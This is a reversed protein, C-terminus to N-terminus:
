FLRPSVCDHQAHFAGRLLSVVGRIQVGGPGKAMEALEAKTEAARKAVWAIEAHNSANEGKWFNLICLGALLMARTFGAYMMAVYFAASGNVRWLDALVRPAQLSQAAHIPLFSGERLQLMRRVRYVGGVGGVANPDEVDEAHFAHRLTPRNKTKDFVAVVTVDDLTRGTVSVVSGVAGTPLLYRRRDATTIRVPTVVVVTMGPTLVIEAPAGQWRRPSSSGREDSAEVFSSM